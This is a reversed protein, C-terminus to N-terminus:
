GFTKILEEFRMRKLIDDGREDFDIKYPITQGLIEEIDPTLVDPVSALTKPNGNKWSEGNHWMTYHVLSSDRFAITMDLLHGRDRLGGAWSYFFRPYEGDETREDIVGIRLRHIKNGEKLDFLDDASGLCSALNDYGLCMYVKTDGFRYILRSPFGKANCKFDGLTFKNHPVRGANILDWYLGRTREWAEREILKENDM